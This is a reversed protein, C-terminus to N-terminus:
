VNQDNVPVEWLSYVFTMRGAVRSYGHLSYAEVNERPTLEVVAEHLFGQTTDIRARVHSFEDSLDVRDINLTTFQVVLRDRTRDASVLEIVFERRDNLAQCALPVLDVFENLASEMSDPMFSFDARVGEDEVGTGYEEVRTGSSQDKGVRCCRRIAVSMGVGGPLQKLPLSESSPIIGCLTQHDWVNGGGGGTGQDVAIIKGIGNDQFGAAFIDASSYSLADVLLISDGNYVRGGPYGEEASTMPFGPSLWQPDAPWQPFSDIWPELTIKIGKLQNYEPVTSPGKRRLELVDQIVARMGPNDPLHFPMTRVPSASLMRLVSEATAIKGGPNGRIDIVLGDPAHKDMLLLIRRFDEEMALGTNDNGFSRIRVYGFRAEPRAPDTLLTPSLPGPGNRGTTLQYEFNSTSLEPEDFGATAQSAEPKPSGPLLLRAADLAEASASNVSFATDPLAVKGGMEVAVSWPMRLAKVETGGRATYAVMVSDEDPVTCYRLPRMTATLLGRGVRTALEGAPQRGEADTVFELTSKGGVSLVEAGPGFGDVERMVRTVVFRYAQDSDRWCRMGFPLFAISQAWPLPAKYITHPDRALGFYLIMRKHFEADSLSGAEERFGHLAAPDFDPYLERKFPLHSYLNELLLIAQDVITRKDEPLLRISPEMKLFEARSVVKVGSSLRELWALDTTFRDTAIRVAADIADALERIM